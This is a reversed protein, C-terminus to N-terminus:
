RSPLSSADLGCHAKAYQSVRKAAAQFEPSHLRGLTAATPQIGTIYDDAVANSVRALVRLDAAIEPPAARAVKANSAKTYRGYAKLQEKSSADKPAAAAIGKIQEKVTTCFEGAGAGGSTTGSASTKKTAATTSHGGAGGGCGVALLALALLVVGAATAIPRQTPV